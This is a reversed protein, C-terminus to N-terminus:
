SFDYPSKTLSAARERAATSTIHQISIDVKASKNGVREVMEDFTMNKLEVFEIKFGYASALKKIQEVSIGGWAANGARNRDRTVFPTQVIAGVRLNKGSFQRELKRDIAAPTELAGNASNVMCALFAVCLGICIAARPGLFTKRSRSYIKIVM